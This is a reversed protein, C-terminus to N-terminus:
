CAVQVGAAAVSLVMDRGRKDLGYVSADKDEPRMDDQKTKERRTASQGDPYRNWDRGRAEM